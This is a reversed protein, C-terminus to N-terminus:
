NYQFCTLETEAKSLTVTDSSWITKKNKETNANLNFVILVAHSTPM